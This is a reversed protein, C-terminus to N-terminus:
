HIQIQRYAQKTVREAICSAFFAGMNGSGRSESAVAHGKAWGRVGPCAKLTPLHETLRPIRSTRHPLWFTPTTQPQPLIQHVPNTTAKALEGFSPFQKAPVGHQPAVSNTAVQVRWVAGPGWAPSIPEPLPGPLPVRQPARPPTRRDHSSGSRPMADEIARALTSSRPNPAWSRKDPSSLRSPKM